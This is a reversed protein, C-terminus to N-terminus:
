KMREIVDDLVARAEPLLKPLAMFVHFANEYLNLTCDAGQESAKQALKKADPCFIDNEGQYIHLPPLGTLDAFIPSLLPSNLDAGNAWLGACWRIGDVALMPDKAQLKEDIDPNDTNLDLWPSFLFLRKPLAVGKDRLSLTLNMALNGGASDGAVFVRDSMACVRDYVALVFPLETDATGQPALRYIPVVVSIGGNKILYEVLQWHQSVLDFVYAGGHLYMLTATSKGHKPSLTIVEREMIDNHSIDCIKRLSKPIDARAKRKAIHKEVACANEFKARRNILFLLRTIASMPLHSLNPKNLM